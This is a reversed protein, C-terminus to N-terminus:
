LKSAASIATSADGLKYRNKQLRWCREVQSNTVYFAAMSLKKDQDVDMYRMFPLGTLAPDTRMRVAFKYLAFYVM